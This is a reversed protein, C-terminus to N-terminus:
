GLGQISLAEKCRAITAQERGTRDGNLMRQFDIYIQELDGITQKPYPEYGSDEFKMQETTNGVQKNVVKQRDAYLEPEGEAGMFILSRKQGLLVNAQAMYEAYPTHFLGNIQNDCQLPNLLRAVTNAFSRVGLRERLHYIRNLDPCLDVLDVYVIGDNAMVKEAEILTTASQVGAGKLVQWATVRSEISAVGHVFIPIGADRAELAAILYAHGARRKGAYCPLDVARAPATIGGFHSIHGRAAQVFGALEASTEGKMRQAILFAGLQLMDVDPQLLASFVIQAEEQSLHESGHKGRAVRKILSSVDSM